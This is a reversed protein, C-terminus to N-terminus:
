VLEYKNLFEKVQERSNFMLVDLISLNPIFENKFQKYDIVQSEIFFLSIDQEKFM